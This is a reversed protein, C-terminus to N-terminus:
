TYDCVHTMFFGFIGFYILGSFVLQKWNLNLYNRFNPNTPYPSRGVNRASCNEKFIAWFFFATNAYLFLSIFALLIFNFNGMLKSSSRNHSLSWISWRSKFALYPLAWLSLQTFLVFPALSFLSKTFKPYVIWELVIYSEAKRRLIFTSSYIAVKFFLAVRGEGM